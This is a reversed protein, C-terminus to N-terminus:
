DEEHRMGLGSIIDGRTVIGILRGGEVVPLCSLKQETMRRAAREVSRDPSITAVREAPTMVDIVSLRSLHRAIEWMDLSPLAGPDLAFSLRDLLGLLRKGDGVVPLHRIDSEHMLHQAEAALMTPPAVIPHRTMCDRVLM